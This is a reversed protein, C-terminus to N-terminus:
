DYLLKIPLPEIVKLVQEVCKVAQKLLGWFLFAELALPRYMVFEGALQVRAPKL